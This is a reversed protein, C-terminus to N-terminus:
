AGAKALKGKIYNAAGTVSKVNMDARNYEPLDIGKANAQEVLGTFKKWMADTIIDGEPTKQEKKQEPKHGNNKEVPSDALHDEEDEGTFQTGYGAHALARGIAATEAGEVPRSKSVGQMKPSGYGTGLVNGEGDLISAKMLMPESQALETIIGGKPHDDRFWVIRWKVELYDKGQISKIKSKPDFTM